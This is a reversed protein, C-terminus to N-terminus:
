PACADSCNVVRYCGAHVYVCIQFDVQQGVAAPGGWEEAQFASELDPCQYNRQDEGAEPQMHDRPRRPHASDGGFDSACDGLRTPRDKQADGKGAGESSGSYVCDAFVLIHVCFICVQLLDQLLLVSKNKCRHKSFIYISFICLRCFCNCSTAVADPVNLM